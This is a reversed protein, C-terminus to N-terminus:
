PDPEPTPAALWGEYRVCPGLLPMAIAVSFRFRGEAVWERADIRPTLWRPLPLPGLRLRVPVMRLGGASTEVRITGTLRGFQEEVHGPSRAIRLRSRMVHGAFDRTWVESGDDLAEFTVTLPADAATPPFGTAWAALRAGLSAPRQAHYRGRASMRRTTLHMTRVVPPLGAFGGPVLGDIAREFLPRRPEATETITIPLHAIAAEFDPLPLMALCPRAGPPEIRQLLRLAMVVAPVAPITPGSGAEAVITWETEIAEPPDGLTARVTMGGRDSGFGILREAIWWLPRAIPELSRVLGWRVPLALVWLGLHLLPLELGARFRATRLTPFLRPLLLADPMEVDSFWRRGLADPLSAGIAFRHLGGWGTRQRPRGAEFGAIPRGAYGLIARVVAIGRPTRNGPSLWVAVTRLPRGHRQAMDALIASTLAPVTSAGSVLTVGAARAAADLAGIGAVFDAGDALDVYHCGAAICAEAVRYDQAQFPGAAHIVVQVELARLWHPLTTADVDAAAPELRANPFAARLDACLAEAKELSRGAVVVVVNRRLLLDCARRGFVGYGGLVLVRPEKM